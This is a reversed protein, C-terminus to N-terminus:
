SRHPAKHQYCLFFPRDRPRNKIFEIALDTIIDTAYGKWKKQKGGEILVPDHYLGQGPLINWYDFGTPDSGLHWKGIMGTYYGAAHLYKQVM